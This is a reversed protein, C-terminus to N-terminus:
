AKARTRTLLGVSAVGGAFWRADADQSAGDGEMYRRLHASCAATWICRAAELAMRDVCRLVTRERARVGRLARKELWPM